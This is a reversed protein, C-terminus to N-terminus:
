GPFARGIQRVAQKLRLENEVLALRLYGEGGEGFGRGPAVAVEAKEMLEFAFDISSMGRYKEPVPTWVFMSARPREVPWGIRALGDCLVDRREQYVKAQEIVYKRCHRMAIIAAIQVPQFIGYDYYGKVGSLAAIVDRHGVCFGCRWGAMNYSKSMTTFEVGVDKAGPAQLFSPAEYGDFVIDCYAFDHLILVEHKKAFRVVEEFFQIDVTAGTPNHPYNLIIAKPKPRQHAIVEHLERLLTEGEALQVTIVNAGALAPGYVHVPFAPEAVVVSDGPGLLALCLHSLGEKSGIVCLVETEPDIHVGYRNEYQRAVEKRLNLLGTAQSYRHNRPDQVAECIKDVIPAPAPDNPNGMGLDIIDIGARRKEYKVANLRGFLYPPLKKM